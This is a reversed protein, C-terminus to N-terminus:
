WRIIDGEYNYICKILDIYKILHFAEAPKCKQSTPYGGNGYHGGCEGGEHQQNALSMGRQGQGTTSPPTVQARWAGAAPGKTDRLISENMSGDSFPSVSKEPSALLGLAAASDASFTKGFVTSSSSSNSSSHIDPYQTPSDGTNVFAGSPHQPSISSQNVPPPYRHPHSSSTRILIPGDEFPRHIFAAPAPNILSESSTHLPSWCRRSTQRHQHQQPLQLEDDNLPHEASSDLGLSQKEVKSLMAHPTEM